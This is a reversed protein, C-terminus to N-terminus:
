RARRRLTYDGRAVAESLKRAGAQLISVHRAEHEGVV